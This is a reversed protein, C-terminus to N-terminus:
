SLHVWHMHAQAALSRSIDDASFFGAKVLDYLDSGSGTQRTSDKHMQQRSVLGSDPLLDVVYEDTPPTSFPLM